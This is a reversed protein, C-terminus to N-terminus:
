LCICGSGSPIYSEFSYGYIDCVNELEDLSMSMKEAIRQKAEEDDEGYGIYSDGETHLILLCLDNSKNENQEYVPVAYFSSRSLWANGAHAINIAEEESNAEYIGVFGPKSFDCWNNDDDHINLGDSEAESVDVLEKVYVQADRIYEDDVLVVYKM